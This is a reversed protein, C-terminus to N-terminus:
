QLAVLTGNGGNLVIVVAIQKKGRALIQHRGDPAGVRTFAEAGKAAMLPGNPIQVAISKGRAEQGRTRVSRHAQPFHFRALAQVLEGVPPGNSSHPPRLAVRTALKGGYAIRKDFVIGFNEHVFFLAIIVVIGPGVCGDEFDIQGFDGALADIGGVQVPGSEVPFEQHGKVIALDTQVVGFRTVNLFGDLRVVLFDIADTEVAVLREKDGARGIEGGPEKVGDSELRELRVPRVSRDVVRDNAFGLIVDQQSAPLLCHTHRRRRALHSLKFRAKEMQNVFVLKATDLPM